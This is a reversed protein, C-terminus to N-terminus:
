DKQNPLTVETCLMCTHFADSRDVHSEDFVNWKQNKNRLNVLGGCELLSWVMDM